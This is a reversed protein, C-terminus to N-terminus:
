VAVDRIRPFMKCTLGTKRVVTQCHQRLQSDRSIFFNCYGLPAVAHQFDAAHSELPAFSDNLRIRSLLEEAAVAPCEKYVNPLDGMLQDIASNNSDLDLIMALHERDIVSQLAKYKERKWPERAGRIAAPTERAANRIREINRPDERLKYVLGRFTETSDNPVGFSAMMRGVSEHLAEPLRSNIALYLELEQREIAHSNGMWLPDLSDVFDCCQQVHTDNSSRALEYGCWASLVFRVGAKTLARAAAREDIADSKSPIGAISSIVNYDLYAHLQSM